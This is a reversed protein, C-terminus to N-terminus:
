RTLPRGGDKENEASSTLKNQDNVTADVADTDVVDVDVEDIEAVFSHFLPTSSNYFAGDDILTKITLKPGDPMKEYNALEQILELITLLDAVETKRIQVQVM